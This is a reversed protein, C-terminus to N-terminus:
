TYLPLGLLEALRKAKAQNELRAPCAIGFDGRNPAALGCALLAVFSIVEDEKIQEIDKQLSKLEAIALHSERARKVREECFMSGTPLCALSVRSICLSALTDSNSYFEETFPFWERIDEKFQKIRATKVRELGLFRTFNARDLILADLNNTWALVALYLGLIRHHRKALLRQSTDATSM